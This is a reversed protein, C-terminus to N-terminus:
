ASPQRQNSVSFNVMMMKPVGPHDAVFAIHRMFLAEMAALPSEIGLAAQDIRTLLREAVWEIVSLRALTHGQSPLKEM